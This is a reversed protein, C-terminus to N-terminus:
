KGNNSNGLKWIESKTKNIQFSSSLETNTEVRSGEQERQGGAIQPLQSSILPLTRSRVLDEKTKDLGMVGQCVRASAGRELSIQECLPQRHTIPLAGLRTQNGGLCSALQHRDPEGPGMDEAKDQGRRQRLAAVDRDGAALPM